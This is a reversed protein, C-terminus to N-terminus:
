PSLPPPPFVTLLLCNLPLFHSRACQLAAQAFHSRQRSCLPQGSVVSPLSQTSQPVASTNSPRCVFSQAPIQHLCLLRVHSHGPWQAPDKQAEATSDSSSWVQLHLPASPAPQTRDSHFGSLGSAQPTSPLRGGPNM